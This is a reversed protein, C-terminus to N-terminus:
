PRRSNGCDTFPSVRSNDLGASAIYGHGYGEQCPRVTPALTHGVNTYVV